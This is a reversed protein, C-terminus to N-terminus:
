IAWKRTIRTPQKKSRHIQWLNVLTFRKKEAPMDLGTALTERVETTLKKLTETDM